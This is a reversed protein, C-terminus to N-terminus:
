VKKTIAKFIEQQLHVTNNRSNAEISKALYPRPLMKKTGEEL